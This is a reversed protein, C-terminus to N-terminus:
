TVSEQRFGQLYGALRRGIRWLVFLAAVPYSAYLVADTVPLSVATNNWSRLVGRYGIWILHCTIAFYLVDILSFLVLRAKWRLMEPVFEVRLHGDTREVEAIGIFAMWVWLWRSLEETWIPPLFIGLRGVVQLLVVAVLVAFLVAAVSGELSYRSRAPPM